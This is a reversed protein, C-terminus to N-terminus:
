KNSSKQESLTQIFDDVFKETDDQTVKEKLLSSSVDFAIDIIQKRMENKMNEKIKIAESEAAARTKDAINKAELQIQEKQQYAQITANDIIKKAEDFAKIKTQEAEQLQKLTRLKANEADKIENAIYERRKALSEKTPKWVLWICISMLTITAVVHALFVWLNPLLSELVGEKEVPSSKCSTLTLLPFVVLLLCTFFAVLKIQNKNM